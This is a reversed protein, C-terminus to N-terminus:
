IFYVMKQLFQYSQIVKKFIYKIHRESLQGSSAYDLLLGKSFYDMVLYPKVGPVNEFKRFDYLLSTHFNNPIQSLKNLIDIENNFSLIKQENMREEIPIKIVYLRKVGEIEGEKRALYVVGYGGDGFRENEKYTYNGFKISM